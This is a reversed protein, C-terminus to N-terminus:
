LLELKFSLCSNPVGQIAKKKPELGYGGSLVGRSLGGFYTQDTNIQSFLLGCNESTNNFRRKFYLKKVAFHSFIEVDGLLNNM